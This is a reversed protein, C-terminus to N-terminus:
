FNLLGWPINFFSIFDLLLFIASGTIFFIVIQKTYDQEPLKYELFHFMLISFIALFIALIILFIILFIYFM